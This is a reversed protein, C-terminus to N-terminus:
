VPSFSLSEVNPSQVTSQNTNFPKAAQLKTQCLKVPSCTRIGERFTNIAPETTSGSAIQLFHHAPSLRPLLDRKAALGKRRPTSIPPREWMSQTTATLRNLTTCAKFCRWSNNHCPERIKWIWGFYVDGKLCTKRYIKETQRAARHGRRWTQSVIWFDCYVTWMSLSRYTLLPRWCMFTLYRWFPGCRRSTNFCFLSFVRYFVYLYLTGSTMPVVNISMGCGSPCCHTEGDDCYLFCLLVFDPVVNPPQICVKTWQQELIKLPMLDDACREIWTEFCLKLCFLLQFFKEFATQHVLGRSFCLPGKFRLIKLYEM